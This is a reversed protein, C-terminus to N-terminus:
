SVTPVHPEDAEVRELLLLLPLLARNGEAMTQYCVVCVDAEEDDAVLGSPARPSPPAAM